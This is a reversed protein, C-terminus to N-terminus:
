LNLAGLRRLAALLKLMPLGLITAHDGVVREFLHMGLGEFRYVGVSGLVDPGAADLYLALAAEDLPRMTMDAIDFDAALIQADLALAFASTLRHTRGSLTTLTRLAEASTASKHFVRGDVSLVQDAGIVLTGRADVSSAKARALALALEQPSANPMAAETAREDVRAAVVAFPLGASALLRQRAVSASALALRFADNAIAPM